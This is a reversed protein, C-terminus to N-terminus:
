LIRVRKKINKEKETIRQASSIATIAAAMAAKSVGRMMIGEILAQGGISTRKETDKPKNSM